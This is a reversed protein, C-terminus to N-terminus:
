LSLHQERVEPKQGRTENVIWRAIRDPRAPEIDDPVDQGLTVYSIPLGGDRCLALIPGAGDAEDLKTAIIATPSIPRFREVAQALAKRGATLSLVLHTEDPNAAALLDNLDAIQQGDRPSRGATDILILDLGILEDLATRMEDPCTVVKMPLDIIEAYTRLQEVAAIRYTDVTVLGTRAAHRLRFNAALKALTTTKGVGTPGALAVIRRRGQELAIPGCCRLEAEVIQTLKMRVAAPDALQVSTMQDRLSEALERALPVDVDAALLREYVGLVDASVEAANRHRRGLDALMKEIADLRKSLETSPGDALPQANMATPTRFEPRVRSASPLETRAFNVDDGRDQLADILTASRNTAALRSSREPLPKTAIGLGATIEVEEKSGWPVIRKAPVQRTALIVAERGLESQVRDLAERMTAARFTRVDPM